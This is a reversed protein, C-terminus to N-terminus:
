EVAELTVTVEGVRTGEARVILPIRREDASFWIWLRGKPLGKKKEKSLVEPPDTRKVSPEVLFAEHVGANRVELVGQQVTTLTLEWNKEDSTLFFKLPVGAHYPITRFYYISSLLDQVAGPIVFEKTENKEPAFYIGKKSDPYFTVTENANYKGQSVRKEFRRSFRDRVDWYSQYTDDIRYFRSLFANSQVHATLRYIDKGELLFGKEEVSLVVTGVPIGVWRITYTLKEGVRLEPQPSEIVVLKVELGPTSPYRHSRNLGSCGQSTLLFFSFPFFFLLFLKGKKRKHKEKM